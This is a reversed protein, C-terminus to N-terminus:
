LIKNVVILAVSLYYIYVFRITCFTSFFNLHLNVKVNSVGSSRSTETPVASTFGLQVPSTQPQKEHTHQDPIMEEGNMKPKISHHVDEPIKSPCPNRVCSDQYPTPNGPRLVVSSSSKGDLSSKTSIVKTGECPMSSAEFPSSDSDSIFSQPLTSAKLPADFQSNCMHPLYKEQTSISSSQFLKLGESVFKLGERSKFYPLPSNSKPIQEDFKHVSLRERPKPVAKKNSSNVAVNKAQEAEFLSILHAPDIRSYLLNFPVPEEDMEQLTFPLLREANEEKFHHLQVYKAIISHVSGFCDRPLQIFQRYTLVKKPEHQPTSVPKNYTGIMLAKGVSVGFRRWSSRSCVEQFPINKLHVPVINKESYELGTSQNKSCQSTIITTAKCSSCQPTEESIVLSNVDNNAKQIAEQLLDSPHLEYCHDENVVFVKPSLKSTSQNYVSDTKVKGKKTIQGTCLVSYQMGACDTGTLLPRSMELSHSVAYRKPVNVPSAPEVTCNLEGTRTLTLTIIGPKTIKYCEDFCEISFNAPLEVICKGSHNYQVRAFAPNEILVCPTSKQANTNVNLSTIRTGDSFEVVLKDKKKVLIVGDERM